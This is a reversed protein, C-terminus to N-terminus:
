QPTLHNNNRGETVMLMITGLIVVIIHHKHGHIIGVMGLLAVAMWIVGWLTPTRDEM